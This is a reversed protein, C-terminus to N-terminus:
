ILDKIKDKLFLLKEAIGGATKNRMSQLSRAVSGIQVKGEYDYYPEKATLKSMIWRYEARLDEPFDTEM